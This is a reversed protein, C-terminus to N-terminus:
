VTHLTFSDIIIKGELALFILNFDLLLLLMTKIYGPAEGFMFYMQM